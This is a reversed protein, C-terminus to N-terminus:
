LEKYWYLSEKEWPQEPECVTYGAKDFNKISGQNGNGCDSVMLTWGLQRAKKERITLLKRQLGKGRHEPSVYCRKLYGTKSFPHFPVLGAFAVPELNFNVIWWYGNTYHQPKLKPWEPVQQNFNYILSVFTTGDIESIEYSM